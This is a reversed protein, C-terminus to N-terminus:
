SIEVGAKPMLELHRKGEGLRRRSSRGRPYRALSVTDLGGGGGGEERAGSFASRDISPIVPIRDHTRVRHLTHMAAIARRGPRMKIVLEDGAM